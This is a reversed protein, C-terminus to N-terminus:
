VYQTFPRTEKDSDKLVEWVTARLQSGLSGARRNKGAKAFERQIMGDEM